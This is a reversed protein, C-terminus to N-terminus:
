PDTSVFLSEILRADDFHRRGVFAVPHHGWERMAGASRVGMPWLLFREGRQSGDVLGYEGFFSRYGEGAPLSRLHDYDVVVLSKAPPNLQVQSGSLGSETDTYVRQLYHTRSAVRVVLPPTPVRQPVLPPEFDFAPLDSRLQLHQTPIFTHYCGCNHISDYLWPEGDPGLTVRWILGDLRGAYIDDGPRAKFWIVYNLQLLIHSGFRTYSLKQYQTSIATDIAPGSRWVATGVLDNDDIVDVEWVPAHARFLKHLQENTLVPIGLPDLAPDFEPAAPVAPSRWQQLNGRVPLAELPQAFVQRSEDQGRRVRMAVFLSTLPYLGAIRWSTVYDDPVHVVELLRTRQQTDSLLSRVMLSRCDELEGPGPVAPAGPNGQGLNRRELARADTDLQALHAVWAQFQEETALEDKVSALFRNARLFPFDAIPVPGQDRVGAREVALDTDQFLTRCAFLLSTEPETAPPTAACGCLASLLLFSLVRCRRVFTKM